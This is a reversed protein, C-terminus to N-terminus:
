NGVKGIKKKAKLNNANESVFSLYFGLISKKKPPTFCYIALSYIVEFKYM